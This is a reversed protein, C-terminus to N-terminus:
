KEAAEAAAKKKAASIDIFVHGLPGAQPSWGSCEIKYDKDGDIVEFENSPRKTRNDWHLECIKKEGDFLDMWGESGRRGRACVEGIGESPIILQDIDDETLAKKEDEPDYLFSERITINGQALRDRIHISVWQSDDM